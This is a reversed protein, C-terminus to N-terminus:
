LPQTPHEVKEVAEDFPIDDARKPPEASETDGPGDGIYTPEHYRKVGPDDAHDNTKDADVM